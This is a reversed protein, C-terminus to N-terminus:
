ALLTSAYYRIMRQFVTYCERVKALVVKRNSYETNHLIIERQSIDRDQSLIDQGLARYDQYGEEAFAKGVAYEIEQLATFMENVTDPALIDYELYQNNFQRKDRAIFKSTNRMLAYMNRDSSRRSPLTTFLVAPMP